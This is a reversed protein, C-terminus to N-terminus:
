ELFSVAILWWSSLATNSATVAIKISCPGAAMAEAKATMVFQAM